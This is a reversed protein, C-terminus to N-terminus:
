EFFAVNNQQLFEKIRDVHVCHGVHLFASDSVKEKKGQETTIPFDKIDFGLHLHNTAFQMGYVLGDEDFLPGGSQGKLGPTSMEIGDVQQSTGIYRTIIGDLPFSPVNSSGDNTWELADTEPNVRYNSFEPFPYGYRCLYKGAKIKAPENIFTAHSSYQKNALGVFTVIALDLRDHNVWSLSTTDGVAPVLILLEIVSNKKYGYKAELSQLMAREGKGAPILAREAKFAAFTNNITELQAIINAVHACTIASGTDNVFFLTSLGPELTGDYKRSVFM